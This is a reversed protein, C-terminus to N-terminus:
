KKTMVEKKIDNIVYSSMLAGAAMPVACITGLLAAHKPVELSCVCMSKLAKENKNLQSRIKKALPDSKTNKLPIIELLEPHTKNATGMCTILKVKAKTCVEILKVKVPVTDCADLVYDFPKVFDSTIDEVALSKKLAKVCTKSPIQESRKKAALVKDMGITEITSLIQRNLNTIDFADKDVVTIEKIGTRILSEFVYGGVGGLGILLVKTNKIRNIVDDDLLREIREFM